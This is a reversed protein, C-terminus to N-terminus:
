SLFRNRILGILPGVTTKLTYEEILPSQFTQAGVSISINAGLGQEIKKNQAGSVLGKYYGEHLAGSSGGGTYKPNQPNLTAGRDQSLFRSM